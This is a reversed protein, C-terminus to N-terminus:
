NMILVCVCVSYIENVMHHSSISGTLQYLELYLPLSSYKLMHMKMCLGDKLHKNKGRLASIILLNNWLNWIFIYIWVVILLM